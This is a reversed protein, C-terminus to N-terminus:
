FREYDTLGHLLANIGATQKLTITDQADFVILIMGQVEPYAFINEFSM